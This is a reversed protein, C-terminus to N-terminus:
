SPTPGYSSIIYAMQRWNRLYPGSSVTRQSWAGHVWAFRAANGGVTLNVSRGNGTSLPPPKIKEMQSTEALGVKPYSGKGAAHNTM